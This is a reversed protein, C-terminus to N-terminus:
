KGDDRLNSTVGELSVGFKEMMTELARRSQELFEFENALDQKTLVNFCLEFSYPLTQAGRATGDEEPHTPPVVEADGTQTRLDGHPEEYVKYVHTGTEKLVGVKVCLTLPDSAFAFYMQPEIDRLKMVTLEKPSQAMQDEKNTFRFVGSFPVSRAWYLSHPCSHGGQYAFSAGMSKTVFQSRAGHEPYRVLKQLVDSYLTIRRSASQLTSPVLRL